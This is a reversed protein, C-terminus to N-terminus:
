MDLYKIKVSLQLKMYVIMILVTSVEEDIRSVEGFSEQKALPASIRKEKWVM